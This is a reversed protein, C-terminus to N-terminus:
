RWCPAAPGDRGGKGSKGLLCPTASFKSAATAPPMGTTFTSRSLRSPLSMAADIADEVAGAIVDESLHLLLTPAEVIHQLFRLVLAIGLGIGGEINAAEVGRVFQRQQRARM